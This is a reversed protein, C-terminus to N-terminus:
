FEKDSHWVEVIKPAQAKELKRVERFAGWKTITLAELMTWESTWPSPTRVEYKFEWWRKSTDKFIKISTM